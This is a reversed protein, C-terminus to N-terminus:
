RRPTPNITVGALALGEPLGTRVTASVILSTVAPRASRGPRLHVVGDGAAAFEVESFAIETRLIPYAAKFFAEKVVFALCGWNTGPPLGALLHREDPTAIEELVGLDFGRMPEADLGIGLADDASGIVAGAFGDCHAISGLLGPPWLPERRVGVLVPFDSVGLRALARRACARGAAFEARRKPVMRRGALAEQRHLEARYDAPTAVEAVVQVSFLETLM